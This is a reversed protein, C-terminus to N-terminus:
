EKKKSQRRRKEIEYVRQDLDNIAQSTVFEIKKIQEGTQSQISREIEAALQKSLLATLEAEADSNHFANLGDDIIDATEKRSIYVQVGLVIMGVIVALVMLEPHFLELLGAAIAIVIIVLLGVLPYTKKHM